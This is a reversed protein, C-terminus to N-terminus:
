KARQRRVAVFAFAAALLWPLVQTSGDGTKPLASPTASLPPTVPTVSSRAPSPLNGPLQNPQLPSIAIDTPAAEVKITASVKNSTLDVVSVSADGSNAVYLMKGDPSLAAGSPSKGM